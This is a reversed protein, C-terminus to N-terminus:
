EDSGKGDATEIFIRLATVGAAKPAPQMKGQKDPKAPAELETWGGERFARTNRTYIKNRKGNIVCCAQYGLQTEANQAGILHGRFARIAGTGNAWEGFKAWKSSVGTKNMVQYCGSLGDTRPTAWDIKVADIMKHQHLHGAWAGPTCNITEGETTRVSVALDHASYPGAVQYVSQRAAGGGPKVIAWLRGIIEPRAGWERGLASVGNVIDPWGSAYDDGSAVGGPRLKPLFFNLSETFGPNGHTADDFFLDVTENWDGMIGPSYGQVATVNPCDRTYYLFADKSFNKCGPFKAEVADIWPAPEWTDISIVRVSPDANKALVWTSSGFLPGVEVILGNKPVTRALHGLYNLGALTMTRPIEKNILIEAM